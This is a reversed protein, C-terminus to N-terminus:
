RVAVPDSLSLNNVAQVATSTVDILPWTGSLDVFLCSSRLATAFTVSSSEAPVVVSPRNQTTMREHRVAKDFDDAGSRGWMHESKGEGRCKWRSGEEM